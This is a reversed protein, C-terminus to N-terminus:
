HPLGGLLSTIQKRHLVILSLEKRKLFTFFLCLGSSYLLAAEVSNLVGCTCSPVVFNLTQGVRNCSEGLGFPSANNKLHLWSGGLFDLHKDPQLERSM